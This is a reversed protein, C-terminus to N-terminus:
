FHGLRALSTAARQFGKMKTAQTARKINHAFDSRKLNEAWVALCDERNKWYVISGLYCLGEEELGGPTGPGFRQDAEAHGRSFRDLFIWAHILEHILSGITRQMPIGALCKIRHIRGFSVGDSLTVTKAHQYVVRGDGAVWTTGEGLGLFEIQVGKDNRSPWGKGREEVRCGCMKMLNSLPNSLANRELWMGEAQSASSKQLCIMETDFRLGLTQEVFFIAQASAEELDDETECLPLCRCRKCLSHNSRAGCSVCDIGRRQCSHCYLFGQRSWDSLAAPPSTCCQSCRM